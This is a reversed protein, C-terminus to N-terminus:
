NDANGYGFRWLIRIVHSHHNQKKWSKEKGASNQKRITQYLMLCIDALCRYTNKWIGPNYCTKIMQELPQQRHMPLRWIQFTIHWVTFGIYREPSYLGMYISHLIPVLTWNGASQGPKIGQIIGCRNGNKRVNSLHGTRLFSRYGTHGPEEM